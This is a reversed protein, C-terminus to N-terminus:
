LLLQIGVALPLLCPLCLSYLLLSHLRSRREVITYTYICLYMCRFMAPSGNRFLASFLFVCARASVCLYVCACVYGRACVCAYVCAYVCVCVFLCVCVSVSMRVFECVSVSASVDCFIQFQLLM